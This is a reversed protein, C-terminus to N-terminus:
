TLAGKSCAVPPVNVHERWPVVISNDGAAEQQCCHKKQRRLWRMRLIEAREDDSNNEVVRPLLRGHRAVPQQDAITPRTM